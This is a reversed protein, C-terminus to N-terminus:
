GLWHYYIIDDAIRCFEYEDETKICFDWWQKMHKELTAEITAERCCDCKLYYFGHKNVRLFDSDHYYDRLKIDIVDDYRVIRYIPNVFEKGFEVPDVNCLDCYEEVDTDTFLDATQAWVRISYEGQEAKYYHFGIESTGLELMKNCAGYLRDSNSSFFQIANRRMQCALDCQESTSVRSICQAERKEKGAGECLCIPEGLATGELLCIFLLAYTGMSRLFLKITNM